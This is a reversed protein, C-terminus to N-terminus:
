AFEGLEQWNQMNTLHQLVKPIYEGGKSTSNAKWIPDYKSIIKNLQSTALLFLNSCISLSFLMAKYIM